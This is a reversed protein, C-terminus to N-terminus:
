QLGRRIKAIIEEAGVTGEQSVLLAKLLVIIEQLADESM